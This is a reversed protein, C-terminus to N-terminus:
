KEYPVKMPAGHKRSSKEAAEIIAINRRGEEATIELAEGLLLHDGLQRYFRGWDSNACPVLMERGRIGNVQASLKLADKGEHLLAGQEGLIRFKAKGAAALQSTEYLAVAGSEFVIQILAHDENTVHPWARKFFHGSVHRIPGPILHTIWDIFHAGWDHAIGGSVAKDSRWWTRPEGYGGSYAELQFVPGLAGSEVIRRMSIFDGDYRRNHYVHVSAKHRRATEIMATCEKTTIAMPKETIAHKGAKLLELTVPAHVNHPTICAVLDVGELELLEKTRAVVKLEPFDDRAQKQREPAIDCIAVPRFGPQARMSDLHHKGMNFSGGYGVVATGLPKPEAAGAAWALGRGLLKGYAPNGWARADHGLALYFVRGAGPERCLAAPYARGQHSMTALVRSGPAVQMVYLEDAIRFDGLRHTLWHPEGSLAVPFEDIAPHGTFRVGLLGLLKENEEYGCACHVGVLPKGGRVFADLAAAEAAAVKGWEVYALLGDYGALRKANLVSRDFTTEAKAGLREKLANAFYAGAAEFDHFKGGLLVLWRSAM